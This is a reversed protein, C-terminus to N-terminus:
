NCWNWEDDVVSFGEQLGTVISAYRNGESSGACAIMGETYFRIAEGRKRKEKQGYCTITVIDNKNM